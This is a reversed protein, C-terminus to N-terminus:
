TVPKLFLTDDVKDSLYRTFVNNSRPIKNALGLTLSPGINVFFHNFCNAINKNGTITTGNSRFETPYTTEKAKPKTEKNILSNIIKWTEKINIINYITELCAYWSLTLVHQQLMLHM